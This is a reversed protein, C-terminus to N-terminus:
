SSPPPLPIPIFKSCWVKGKSLKCILSFSFFSRTKNIFASVSLYYRKFILIQSSSFRLFYQIPFKLQNFVCFCETFRISKKPQPPAIEKNKQITKISKIFFPSIFDESYEHLIKVILKYTNIPYLSKLKVRAVLM